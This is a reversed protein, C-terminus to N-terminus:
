VLVSINESKELDTTLTFVFDTILVKLLFYVFWQSFISLGIYFIQFLTHSDLLVPCSWFVKIDVKKYKKVNAEFIKNRASLNPVRKINGVKKLDYTRLKNPLKHPLM